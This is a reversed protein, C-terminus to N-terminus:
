SVQRNKIIDHIFRLKTSITPSLAFPYYDNHGISRNMANMAITVPIWQTLLRDFDDVDRPSDVEENLTINATVPPPSLGYAHATELGSIMHFYHAWTEAFDEWPHCTSYASVYSSQWDLKPGNNYYIQLAASYDAREDGFVSRFRDLTNPQDVLRDWYFHGIEHRFHGTLTRFPEGMAVRTKERVADDAEAINITILGNDHGTMVKKTENNETIVDSLLEFRLTGEAKTVQNDLILGSKILDYFLRRKARELRSWLKKKESDSIDPIKITHSCSQCLDSISSPESLWNCGILSRNACPLYGDVGNYTQVFILSGTLMLDSAALYVLDAQCDNCKTNDFHVENKCNTCSFRRM